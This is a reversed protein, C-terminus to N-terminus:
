PAESSEAAEIPVLGNVDHEFSGENAYRDNATSLMSVIRVQFLAWLVADRANSLKIAIVLVVAAM